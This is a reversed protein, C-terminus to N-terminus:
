LKVGLIKALAATHEDFDAPALAIRTNPLADLRRQGLPTVRLTGKSDKILALSKLRLIHSAQLTKPDVIGHAVRRLAIEEHPSLPALLGREVTFGM